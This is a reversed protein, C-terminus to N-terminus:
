KFAWWFMLAGFLLMSALFAIIVLVGGKKSTQTNWTKPAPLGDIILFSNPNKKNKIAEKQKNKLLINLEEISMNKIDDPKCNYVNILVDSIDQKEKQNKTKNM